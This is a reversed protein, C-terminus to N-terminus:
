DGNCSRSCNIPDPDSKFVRGLAQSQPQLCFLLVKGDGLPLPCSLLEPLQRGDQWTIICHSVPCSNTRLGLNPKVPRQIGKNGSLGAISVEVSTSGTQKLACALRKDRLIQMWISLLFHTEHHFGAWGNTFSMFGWHVACCLQCDTGSSAWPLFLLSWM